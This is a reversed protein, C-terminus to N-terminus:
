RFAACTFQQIRREAEHGGVINAPIRDPEGADGAQDCPISILDGLSTVM